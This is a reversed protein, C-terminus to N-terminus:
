LPKLHNLCQKFSKSPSSSHNFCKINSWHNTIRRPVEGIAFRQFIKFSRLQTVPSATHVSLGGLQCANQCVHFVLIRHRGESWALRRFSCTRLDEVLLNSGTKLRVAGFNTPILNNKLWIAFPVPLSITSNKASKKFSVLQIIYQEQMNEPALFIWIGQFWKPPKLKELHHNCVHKIKVGIQPFSGIQSGGVLKKNNLISKSRYKRHFAVSRNLCSMAEYQYLTKKM